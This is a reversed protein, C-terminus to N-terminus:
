LYGKGSYFVNFRTNFGDYYLIPYGFCHGHSHSCFIQRALKNGRGRSDLYGGRRNPYYIVVNRKNSCSLFSPNYLKKSSVM